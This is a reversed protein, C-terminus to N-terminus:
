VDKVEEAIPIMVTIVTGCGKSSEINMSGEEGYFMELRMMVNPIGIGVREGPEASRAERGDSLVEEIRSSDMGKGNDELIMHIEHGRRIVSLRVLAGEMMDKVGHSVANEMLPQLIMGPMVANPLGEEIDLEFQIRQGFRVKQIEIYNRICDIEGYLDSSSDSKDLSYRLLDATQEMLTSTRPAQELYAMKTILNLTNFLFHPNIQEQLAKLQADSLLKNVKLNENEQQLILKELTVREEVYALNEQVSEAMALVASNLANLEIDGSKVPQLRYDRHEIKRINDVLQSIPNTISRISMLIGAAAGVIMLIVTVGIMSTQRKLDASTAKYETEMNETVMEAFIIYTDQILGPLNQFFASGNKLELQNNRIDQFLEDYTDVMNQLKTYEKKSDEHRTSTILHELKERSSLVAEEYGSLDEEKRDYLYSKAFSEVTEIDRYFGSLNQYYGAFEEYADLSRVSGRGAALVMFISLALLFGFSLILKYKMGFHKTM